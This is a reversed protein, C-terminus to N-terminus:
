GLFGALAACLVEDTEPNSSCIAEGPQAAAGMWERHLPAQGRRKLQRYFHFQRLLDTRTIIGRLRGSKDVVVARGGRTSEAMKQRIRHMPASPCVRTVKTLMFGTVPRNAAGEEDGRFAKSIEARTILGLLKDADGGEQGVVPLAYLGRSRLIEEAQMLTTSPQCSLVPSTMFDEAVLEPELIQEKCITDVLGDMLERAEAEPDDSHLRISAAAAKPHGGAGFKKFLANFDVSEIRACVRGILALRDKARGPKSPHMEGVLLVGVESMDLLNQAVRAMGAVREENVLLVSGVSIGKHQRKSLLRFAEVLSSQQGASLSTHTYESVVTQQCGQTMLWALAAADRATASDYTLSGTDAHIGLALLTSEAETLQAQPATGLDERLMETVMTTAAGVHEIHLIADTIDSDKDIHHDYVHVTEAQDLLESAPGVRDRTQADCLGVKRAGAPDLLELGLIPFLELHLALFKSVSPHAGRPLVVYTPVEPDELNWLKAVGVAAALSDFDASLHTLVVNYPQGRSFLSWGLRGPAHSTEASNGGFRENKSAPAWSGYQLEKSAPAWFGYQVEETPEKNPGKSSEASSSPSGQTSATVARASRGGRRRRATSTRLQRSCHQQWVSPTRLSGVFAASLRGTPGAPAAAAASALQLLSSLFLFVRGSRSSAQMNQISRGAPREPATGSM